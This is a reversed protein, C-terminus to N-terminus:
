CESEIVGVAHHVTQCKMFGIEMCAGVKSSTFSGSGARCPLPAPATLGARSCAARGPLVVVARDLVEVVLLAFTGQSGIRRSSPVTASLEPVSGLQVWSTTLM